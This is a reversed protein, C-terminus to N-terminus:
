GPRPGTAASVRCTPSGATSVARRSHCRMLVQLALVGPQLARPAPARTLICVQGRGGKRSWPHSGLLLQTPGPGPTFSPHTAPALPRRAWRDVLRSSLNFMRM